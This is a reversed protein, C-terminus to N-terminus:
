KEVPLGEEGWSIIGGALNYVNNFGLSAMIKQASSSRGGSRCYVLYEKNKDLSSVKESFDSLSVNINSSGGIHGEKYEESTRVDIVTIGEKIKKEAEKPLINQM